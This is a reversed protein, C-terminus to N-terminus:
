IYLDLTASSRKEGVAASTSTRSYLSARAVSVRLYDAVADTDSGGIRSIFISEDGQLKSVIDDFCYKLDSIFM